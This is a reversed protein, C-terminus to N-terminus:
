IESDSKLDDAADAHHHNSITKVFDEESSDSHAKDNINYKNVLAIRGNDAHQPDAPNRQLTADNVEREAESYGSGTTSDPTYNENLTPGSVPQNTANENHAAQIEM